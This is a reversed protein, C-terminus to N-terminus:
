LTLIVSGNNGGKEIEAHAKAIDDLSFSAAVRNHLRNMALFDTIDAIADQKAEEPMAYVLVLRLTLDMFMMRVFPISPNMDTM